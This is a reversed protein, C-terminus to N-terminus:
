SASRAFRRRVDDFLGVIGGPFGIVIIALVVGLVFRWYQTLSQLQDQLLTFALAGVIPGLFNSAGGLVAMFVLQGSQTWYVLEPDALGVRFGLIAGGAAGYAASIVFAALRSRRVHVGLYEAKRANDRIARLHLGFPSHVIRWMALGTAVLLALCYYYFPGALFEIKNYQAFELGLINMRPVRLGSDGGTLHYFKFLFSYFLMGFALTLMGFFIGVNRVCIIGIPVAAITAAFVVVLLVVEFSKIGWIGAVVAAGYAGFGLFMAHGFSLLGTYGFLLNFGLLAIAFGFFPIMLSVYYPPVISPVAALAVAGPRGFLGAPRLLLVAIVIVYIALVELEPYLVISYARILGVILAGVLAGRMSGLGGIVVVAFAEIVFEVAMDLSAAATPVILAGATTGLVTGLTFVASYIRRVDVGLAEAMARNEATARLIRGFNTRQLFAGLGIAVLIAAAIVLLNYVPVSFDPTSITGYILYASDLSRPNAGWVFRFVDQFMLVLAFTLLLQFSEDRAYVTRLLREIPPGIVGLLIGSLILGPLILWPSLGLSTATSLFSVGFYAGLAYFSGCALNVIKQVGFVLQLGAAVLFLVAAHFVGGVLINAFASM